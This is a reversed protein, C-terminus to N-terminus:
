DAPRATDLCKRVTETLYELSFPKPLVPDHSQNREAQDVAYSSIFIVKLGPREKRLRAALEWGNLKGPLVIDTVLLDIKLANIRWLNLAELGDAAEWIQYGSSELVERTVKRVDADDEVVLIKEHGAGPVANAQPLFAGVQDPANAPMVAQPQDKQKTSM